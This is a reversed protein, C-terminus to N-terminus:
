RSAPLGSTALHATLKSNSKLYGPTAYMQGSVMGIKKAILNAQTPPL